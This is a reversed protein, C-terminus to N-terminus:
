PAMRDHLFGFRRRVLAEADAPPALRELRRVAGRGWPLREGAREIRAIHAALPADPDDLWAWAADGPLRYDHREGRMSAALDALYGLAADRALGRLVRRAPDCRPGLVAIAHDGEPLAGAAVLVVVDLAARLLHKPRVKGATTLGVLGVGPVVPDCAGHLPRPGDPLPLVLAPRPDTIRAGARTRGLGTITAPGRPGLAAAQAHLARLAAEDVARQIAGFRGVPAGSTLEARVARERYRALLRDLDGGVVLFGGFVERLLGATEFTGRELPEGAVGLEDGEDAEALGLVQEAWAQVPLELFRRLGHITLERGAEAAAAPGRPAQALLEILEPAEAAGLAQRVAEEDLAGGAARAHAELEGRLARARAQRRGIPDRPEEYRRLRQERWALPAALHPRLADELELLASSPGLPDGTREDRAVFSLTLREAGLTATLLAGLDRDRPGVDGPRRQAVRLDLGGAPDRRPFGEGLGAVFVHRFPLPAGGLPAVLVGDALLDGSTGRLGGLAAGVLARVIAYSVPEGDVDLEALRVIAARARLLHQEDADDAPRVLEGLWGDLWGAWAALARPTRAEAALAVLRRVLRILALASPQQGASVEEPLYRRGGLGVAALEGSREGEMVCGLVLRRLGQEWNFVDVDIYTGAHAAHDAGDVIGLREIWGAWDDREVEGRGAAVAPHLLVAAMAPRDLPGALLEVIRRVAEASRGRHGLPVDLQHHPLGREGFVAGVHAQILAQRDRAYLVAIEDLRLTPDDDLAAEIGDAIAELERRVGAARVIAVGPEALPAGSRGRTLTAAQLAALGTPEARPPAFRHEEAVGREGIARVLERTAGGWRALLPADTADEGVDDWFERCPNPVLMHVPAAAALHELADLYRPALHAFGFVVVRAPLRLRDPRTALALSAATGCPGLPAARGGPGFVARWLRRQGPEDAAAAGLRPAPRDERWAAIWDPRTLEYDLFLGALQDALELRLRDADADPTALYARIAALAPAALVAPDRLVRELLVTALPRDIRRADPRGAEVVEALFSELFPTELNAVVGLVRALGHSVWTATARDPVVVVVRDFVGLEGADRAVALEEALVGLLGALRDGHTVRLV